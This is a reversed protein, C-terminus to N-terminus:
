MGFSSFSVTLSKTAHHHRKPKASDAGTNKVAKLTAVHKAEKKTPEAPQPQKLREQQPEKEERKLEIEIEVVFLNLFSV